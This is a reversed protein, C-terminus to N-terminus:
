EMKKLNESDEKDKIAILKSLENEILERNSEDKKILLNLINETYNFMYKTGTIKLLEKKIDM